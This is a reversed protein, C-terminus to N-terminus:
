LVHCLASLEAMREHIDPSHDSFVDASATFGGPERLLLQRSAHLRALNRLDALPLSGCDWSQSSKARLERADYQASKPKGSGCSCTSSRRQNPIRTM